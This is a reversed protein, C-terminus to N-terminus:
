WRLAGACIMGCSIALIMMQDPATASAFLAAPIAGWLLGLVGAHRAARQIAKKSALLRPPHNRARQWARLGQAAVFLLALM